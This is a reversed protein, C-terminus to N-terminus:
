PERAGRVVALEEDSLLQSEDIEVRTIEVSM